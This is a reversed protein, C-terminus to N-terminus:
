PTRDLICGSVTKPGRKQRRLVRGSEKELESLFGDGGLPRGASTKARISNCEGEYTEGTESLFTQWDGSKPLFPCDDIYRDYAGTVHSAASSWPYHEPKTVMGARVPNLEVYRAVRITHIEDLPSSRFRGQWLCGSWGNRYNIIRAYAAQTQRMTESLGAATTPLALFHFHNTMLCYAWLKVGLPKAISTFLDLFLPYDSVEFFTQQRRNGRQVIHHPVGAIIIRDIRPM